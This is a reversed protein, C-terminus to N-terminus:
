GHVRLAQELLEQAEAASAAWTIRPDRRFWSAQRRAFQRTRRLAEQWASTWRYATRWTPWSRATASRRAPRRAVDAPAPRGADAGRGAPRGGADGRLAGRHPPRDGRTAPRARGPARRHTSLGRTRPRLRLLTPRRRHHGRPRPRRPPPQDAGHPGGGGPRARRAPRAPRAARCAGRRDRGGARGRRRPLPGPHQSRRRRRPPVAGHGRRAPCPAGAAHHGGVGRASGAPVPHRHLGRRSRRSRGPPAARRSPGGTGTQVHRHGHGPLRM